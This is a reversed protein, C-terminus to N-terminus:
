NKSGKTNQGKTRKKPESRMIEKGPYRRFVSPTANMIKRAQTADLSVRHQGVRQRRQVGQDPTKSEAPQFRRSFSVGM